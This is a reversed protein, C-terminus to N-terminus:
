VKEVKVPVGHRATCGFIKDRYLSAGKRSPDVVNFENVAMGGARAKIGKIVKGDVFTDDVGFASHGYGTPIVISGKSVTKDAQIVGEIHKGKPSTVRAKDGTKLNQIRADDEHMQIYNTPSLAVVRPLVVSYPSRLQSKFTSFRFPYEASPWAAEVATGDWFKDVEFTPQGDYNKGFYSDKTSALGENYIQFQTDM